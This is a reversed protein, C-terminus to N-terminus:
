LLASIYLTNQSIFSKGIIQVSFMFAKLGMFLDMWIVLSTQKTFSLHKIKSPLKGSKPLCRELLETQKDHIDCVSLVLMNM